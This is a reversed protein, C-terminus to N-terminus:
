KETPNFLLELEAYTIREIPHGSLHLEFYPTNSVPSKGSVLRIKPSIINKFIWDRGICDLMKIAIKRKVAELIEKMKFNKIFIFGLFVVPFFHGDVLWRFDFLCDISNYIGPKENKPKTLSQNLYKMLWM